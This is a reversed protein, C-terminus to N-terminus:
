KKGGSKERPLAEFGTKNIAVRLQDENVQADDYVVTAAAKDLSVDASKVGKTSTLAKKVTVVCSGCTMGKVKIQATNEKAILSGAFVLLGVLISVLKM